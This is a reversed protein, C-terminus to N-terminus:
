KKEEKKSEFLIQAALKAIDEKNEIIVSMTKEAKRLEAKEWSKERVSKFECFICYGTWIMSFVPFPIVICCLLDIFCLEIFPTFYKKAKVATKKYGTSTRAEGRQKAKMVGTILDIFMAGITAAICLAILVIHIMMHDHIFNYIVDRMKDTKKLNISYHTKGASGLLHAPIKLSFILLWGRRIDLPITM